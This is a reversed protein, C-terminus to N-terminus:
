CVCRPRLFYGMDVRDVPLSFAAIAPDDADAGCGLRVLEGAMAAADEEMEADM